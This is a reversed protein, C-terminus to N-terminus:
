RASTRRGKGPKAVALWAAVLLAAVDWTRGAILAADSLESDPSIVTAGVVIVSLFSLKAVVM